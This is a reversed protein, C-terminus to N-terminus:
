AGFCWVVIILACLAMRGLYSM